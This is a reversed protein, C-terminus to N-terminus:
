FVLIVAKMLVCRSEGNGTEYKVGNGEAKGNRSMDIERM